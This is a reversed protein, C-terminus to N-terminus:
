QLPFAIESRPGVGRCMARNARGRYARRPHDRDTTSGPRGSPAIPVATAVDNLEFGVAELRWSWTLTDIRRGATWGTIRLAERVSPGCGTLWGGGREIRWM